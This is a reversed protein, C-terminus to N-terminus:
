YTRGHFFPSPVREGATPWPRNVWRPGSCRPSTAMPSLGFREKFVRSFHYKSLHSLRALEDLSLDDYIHHEVYRALRRSFERDIFLEFGKLHGLADSYFLYKEEYSSPTRFTRFRNMFVIIYRFLFIINLIHCFLLM